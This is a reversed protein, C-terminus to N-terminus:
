GLRFAVADFVRPENVKVVIVAATAVVRGVAGVVSLHHQRLQQFRLVEQSEFHVREIARRNGVFPHCQKWPLDIAVVGHQASLVALM